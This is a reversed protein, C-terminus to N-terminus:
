EAAVIYDAYAAWNTAVIWENYLNAPVIIEMGDNFPIDAVYLEPVMTVKSFDIFKLSTCGMFTDTSVWETGSPMTISELSTCGEFATGGIYDVSDPILVKELRTCGKFMGWSISTYGAPFIVMEINENNGFAGYDANTVARGDYIAPVVIVKDTCTGIGMIMYNNGYWSEAIDLGESPKNIYDAYTAWNTAAVWESYLDPHVLIKAIKYNTMQDFANVNVLTPVAEHRSFDYLECKSCGGFVSAEIKDINKSIVFKKVGSWVFANTGIKTISNPMIIEVTGKNSGISNCAQNGIEVVSDPITFKVIYSCGCFAYDGIKTVGEPINIETVSRDIIAATIAEAEAYGEGKGQEIGETYGQEVAEDVGDAMESLKYAKNKGTYSNIKGAIKAVDEEKYLKNAM